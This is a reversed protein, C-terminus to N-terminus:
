DRMIAVKPAFEVYEKAVMPVTVEAVVCDEACEPEKGYIDIITSYNLDVGVRTRINRVDKLRGAVVYRKPMTIESMM